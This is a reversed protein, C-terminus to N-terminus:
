GLIDLTPFALSAAPAPLPLLRTHSSTEAIGEFFLLTDFFGFLSEAPTSTAGRGTIGGGHLLILTKSVGLTNSVGLTEVSIRIFCLSIGTLPDVPSPTGGGCGVLRKEQSNLLRCRSVGIVFGAACDAAEGPPRAEIVPFVDGSRDSSSVAFETESDFDSTASSM